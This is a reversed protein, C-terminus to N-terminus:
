DEYVPTLIQCGADDWSPTFFAPVYVGQIRSLERLLTKKSGDGDQKFAMVTDAVELVTDEGDGIVFADFFEALPEPNFACPGGAIVLPFTDDRQDAYFPIGSLSFLTLINTFNLEYLLSVGIVDFHALPTRTEMSLCPVQRERMLSEMDPAPAFFREAAINKRNNLISYLIQLGFHSTGIEYLDPFALAFTLDVKDHDKRVANIETGAYRTPTQVRALIEQYNNCHM